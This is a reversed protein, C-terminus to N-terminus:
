RRVGGEGATAQVTEGWSRLLLPADIVVGGKERRFPLPVPNCGGPRGVTELPILTKCYYCILASEGQGYGQPKCISCADLTVAYEGDGKALVFFRAEVGERSYVFKHMRGDVIDPEGKEPILIKGGADATVKVPAPDWYDVRPFRSQYVALSLVAAALLPAAQQHRRRRIYGAMLLRREAGRRIHAVPPLPQLRIAASIFALPAFFIAVGGWFGVGSSFLLGIYEWVRPRIFPHDPLLMSEFFQHVFDHIFKMVKMVLPSFLDLRPSSSAICLLLALILAWLGTGSPAFWRPLFRGAFAGAAALSFGAVAAAVHVMTQGGGGAPVLICGVAAGALLSALFAGGRGALRGAAHSGRAGGGTGHIGGISALWLLAFVAATVGKFPAVLLPAPVFLPLLSGTLFLAGCGGALLTTGSGIGRALSLMMGGWCLLPPIAKLLTTM